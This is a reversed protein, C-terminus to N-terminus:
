VATLESPGKTSDFSYRAPKPDDARRREAEWAAARASPLRLESAIRRAPIDQERLMMFRRRLWRYATSRAVGAARRASDLDDGALYRAWFAEEVDVALALHHRGSGGGDARTQEWVAALPACYGLEAQAEAANFGHERLALFAERLWRYGTEKGVGAARASPKVGRGERVSALFRVGAASDSRLYV